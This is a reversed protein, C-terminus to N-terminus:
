PKTSIKDKLNKIDVETLAYKLKMESIEKTLALDASKLEAVSASTTADLKSVSSATTNQASIISDLKANVNSGWYITSGFITLFAIILGIRVPTSESIILKDSM